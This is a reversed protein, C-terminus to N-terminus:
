SSATHESNEEKKIGAGRTGWGDYKITIAAYIRVFLLFVGYVFSYVPVFIFQLPRYLIYFGNHMYMIIFHYLIIDVIDFYFGRQVVSIIFLITAILWFYTDALSWLLFWIKRPFMDRVATLSAIYASRQWRRRQSTLKRWTNPVETESYATNQYRTKGGSMNSIYTMARDDGASVNIGFLSTMKLADLNQLIFDMKHLSFAGSCVVVDGTVSQAARGLQFAGFYKIAQLKTCFNDKRNIVGIHGVCSTTKGDEFPRLLETLANPLIESDSDLLFVYDGSLLQFGDGMVERKGRNAEFRVIQFLPAGKDNKHADAFSQAVEFALTSKSGDDLFLIEHVPYDLALVNELIAVVSTPNENFCTIMATVKYPKTLEKRCPRYLLAFFIKVLMYFFMLGGLLYWQEARATFRWIAFICALTFLASICKGWVTFARNLKKVENENITTTKKRYQEYLKEQEPVNSDM